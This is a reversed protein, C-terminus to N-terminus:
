WRAQTSMVGASRMDYHKECSVRARPMYRAAARCVPVAGCIIMRAYRARACKERVGRQPM